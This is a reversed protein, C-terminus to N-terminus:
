AVKGIRVRWIAPGQEEYEWTFRGAHEASFQYFLPRPDHDNILTFSTGPDLRDFMQFILGHRQPPPVRRVDLEAYAEHMRELVRNQEDDALYQEFLPLYAEEEKHLHLTVVAVLQLAVQKLRKELGPLDANSATPLVRVIQEIQGTYDEIARHDIRMTETPRGHEKVLSDLVGYLHEEEGAAHPLLELKLFRLLGEVDADSRDDALAEAHEVLTKMLERHHSRIMDGAQSM